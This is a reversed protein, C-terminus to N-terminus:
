DNRCYFYYNCNDVTMSTSIYYLNAYEKLPHINEITHNSIIWRPNAEIFHVTIDNSVRDDVVWLWYQLFFYKGTPFIEM